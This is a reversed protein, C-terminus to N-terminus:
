YFTRILERETYTVNIPAVIANLCFAGFAIAPYEHRNEAIITIVDNQRVGAGHLVQAMLCTQEYMDRYTWKKDSKGNIQLVRISVQVEIM